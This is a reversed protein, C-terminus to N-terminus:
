VVGGGNLHHRPARSASARHVHRKMAQRLREKRLDAYTIQRQREARRERTENDITPYIAIRQQLLDAWGARAADRRERESETLSRAIRDTRAWFNVM